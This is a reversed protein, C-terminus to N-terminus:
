AASISLMLRSGAGAEPDAKIIARVANLIDHPKDVEVYLDGMAAMLWTREDKRFDEVAYQLGKLNEIKLVVEAEPGVLERFQDVDRQSEVYSLFFRTFGAKRAAEIKEIETPLFTPGKVLLDKHRIHISEGPEVMWKPGGDFILRRGDDVVERLLAADEGAKFLVPTDKIVGIPHNLELELHTKLAHVKTVRLQRGKIDFYLPSKSNHNANHFKSDLEELSIMATNLRVGSVRYDNAFRTFHKFSPWMTVMLDIKKPNSKM